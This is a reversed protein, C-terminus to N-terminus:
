HGQDAHGLGLKWGWPGSRLETPGLCGRFPSQSSQSAWATRPTETRPPTASEAKPGLCSSISLLGM